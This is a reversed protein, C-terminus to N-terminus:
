AGEWMEHTRVRHLDAVWAADAEDDSLVVGWRSQARAVMVAKDANGRGCAHAKVASPAYEAPAICRRWLALRVAGHAMGLRLTTTGSRYAIPQEIGIEIPTWEDVVALIADAILDLRESLEVAPATEIIAHHALEGSDYDVLAIGTRRLALDIGLVVTM